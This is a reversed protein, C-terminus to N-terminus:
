ALYWVGLLAYNEFCCQAARFSCSVQTLWWKEPANSATGPTMRGPKADGEEGDEHGEAAMHQDAEVVNIDNTIAQFPAQQEHHTFLAHSPAISGAESRAVDLGPPRLARYPAPARFTTATQAQMQGLDVSNSLPDRAATAAAPPPAAGSADSTGTDMGDHGDVGAEAATPLQLLGTTRTRQPGLASESARPPGLENSMGASAGDGSEVVPGAARAGGAQPEWAAAHAAGVTGAPAVPEHAEAVPRRRGRQSGRHSSGEASASASDYRLVSEGSQSGAAGCDPSAQQMGAFKGLTPTEPQSSRVASSRPGGNFSVGVSGSGSIRQQAHTALSESALDSSTTFGARALEGGFGDAFSPQTRHRQQGAPASPNQVHM